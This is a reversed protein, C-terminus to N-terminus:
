GMVGKPAIALIDIAVSACGIFIALAGFTFRFVLPLNM